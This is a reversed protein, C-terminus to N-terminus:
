LFQPIHYEITLIPAVKGLYGQNKIPALPQQSEPQTEKLIGKKSDDLFNLDIKNDIPQEINAM